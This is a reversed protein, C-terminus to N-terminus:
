GSAASIWGLLSRAPGYCGRIVGLYSVPASLRCAWLSSQALREAGSIGMLFSHPIQTIIAQSLRRMSAPTWAQWFREPSLSVGISCDM